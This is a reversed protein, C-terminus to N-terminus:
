QSYAKIGDEKLPQSRFFYPLEPKGRYDGPISWFDAGAYEVNLDAAGMRAFGAMWRYENPVDPEAQAEVLMLIEPNTGHSFCYVAGEAIGREPDDYRLIPQPMLRLLIVQGDLMTESADFSRTLFTLRRRRIRQEQSVEANGPIEIWKFETEKPEWAWDDVAVSKPHRDVAIFEFQIHRGQYVETVMIAPPRGKEGIRWLTADSVNRVPDSFRLLPTSHFGSKKGDHGIVKMGNVRSQIWELRPDPKSDASEETPPEQASCPVAFLLMALVTSQCSLQIVNRHFRDIM